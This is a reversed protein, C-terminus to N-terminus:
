RLLVWSAFQWRWNANASIVEFTQPDLVSLETQGNELSSTGLLILTGDLRYALSVAKDIRHLQELTTGDLVVTWENAGQEQQETAWGHLFIRGSEPDVSLSQTNSEIHAKVQGTAPDIVQLGLGTQLYTGLGGLDGTSYRTGSVYLQSGDPSFAATKATGNAMKAHATRATLMLLHEIWSLPESIANTTIRQADFDVTTLQDQDAHVIYLTASNPAFTAAPQWWVGELPNTSGEPMEQGNALGEVQAQWIIALTTADLLAVYSNQTTGEMGFVMIGRGDPTFQYNTSYFDLPQQALLRGSAVDVLYVVDTAPWTETQTVVLLREDDVSFLPQSYAGDFVLTTTVVQWTSLDVFQLIGDQLASNHQYTIMALQTRDNSPAYTSYSGLSLPEYGSTPLGTLTDHLQLACSGAGCTQLLVSRALPSAAEVGRHLADESATERDKVEIVFRLEHEGATATIEWCGPTPVYVGSVQFGTPYCCPIEVRLPEADGDLRQGSVQLNSGAPRIWFVKEGGTYWVRSPQVGVWMTRDDNIHWLAPGFPDANPDDPPQDWVPKTVPCSSASENAAAAVPAPLLTPDAFSLSTCAALLQSLCFLLLSLTALRRLM